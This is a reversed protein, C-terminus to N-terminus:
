DQPCGYLIRAATRHGTLRATSKSNSRGRRRRCISEREGEAQKAEDRSEGKERKVSAEGNFAFSWFSFSFVSLAFFFDDERSRDGGRRFDEM